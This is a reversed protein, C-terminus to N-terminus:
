EAKKGYLANGIEIDLNHGAKTFADILERGAWTMARWTGRGADWAIDKAKIAARIQDEGQESLYQSMGQTFTTGPPRPQRPVSVPQPTPGSAAAPAVPAPAPAVRRVSVPRRRSERTEKEGSKDADAYAETAARAWAVLQPDGRRFMKEAKDLYDMHIKGYGKPPDWEKGGQLGKLQKSLDQQSLKGAAIQELRDVHGLYFDDRVKLKSNDWENAKNVRDEYEPTGEKFPNNV